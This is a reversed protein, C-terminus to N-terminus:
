VKKKITISKDMYKHQERDQVSFRRKRHAAALVPIGLQSFQESYTVAISLGLHSM